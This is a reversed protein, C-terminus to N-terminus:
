SAGLWAARLVMGRASGYRWHRLIIEAGVVVSSLVAATGLAGLPVWPNEKMKDWFGRNIRDPSSM